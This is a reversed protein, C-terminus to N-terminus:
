KHLCDCKSYKLLSISWISELTYSRTSHKSEFCIYIHRHAKVLYEFYKVDFTLPFKFNSFITIFSEKAGRSDTSRKSIRSWAHMSLLRRWRPSFRCCFIQLQKYRLAAAFTACFMKSSDVRTTASAYNLKPFSNRYVLQVILVRSNVFWVTRVNM